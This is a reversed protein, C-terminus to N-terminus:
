FSLAQHLPFISVIDQADLSAATLTDKMDGFCNNIGTGRKQFHNKVLVHNPNPSLGSSPLALTDSAFLALAVGKLLASSFLMSALVPKLPADCACNQKRM